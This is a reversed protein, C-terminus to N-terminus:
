ESSLSTLLCYLEIPLMVKFLEKHHELYQLFKRYTDPIGGMDQKDPHANIVVIGDSQHIKLIRSIWLNVLLKPSCRCHYLLYFDQPVTLPMEVVSSGNVSYAFAERMNCLSSDYKYGDKELLMLQDEAYSLWPARFGYIRVDLRSELVEKSLKIRRERELSSVVSFKGDHYLEHSGIEFGDEIIDRIKMRSLQYKKEGAILNFCSRFGMSKEIHYLIHMGNEYGWHTDVDHTLVVPTRQFHVKILSRELVKEEDDNPSILLALYNKLFQPILTYELPLLRNVIELKIREKRFIRNIKSGM